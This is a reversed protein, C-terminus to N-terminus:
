EFVYKGKNCDREDSEDYCDLKGDCIANLHISASGNVALCSWRGLRYELLCAKKCSTVCTQSVCRDDKCVCSKPFLASERLVEELDEDLIRHYRRANAMLESANQQEACIGNSLNLKVNNLTDVVKTIIEKINGTGNNTDFSDQMDSVVDFLVRIEDYIKHRKTFTENINQIQCNEAFTTNIQIILTKAGNLSEAVTLFILLVKECLLSFLKLLPKKIVIHMCIYTFKFFFFLVYDLGQDRCNTEDSGNSCDVIGDCINKLQIIKDSKDGVTCRLESLTNVESCVLATSVICEKDTNISEIDNSFISKNGMEDHEFGHNFSQTEKEQSRGVDNFNRRSYHVLSRKLIENFSNTIINNYSVIDGNLEQLHKEQATELIKKRVNELFIRKDEISHVTLLYKKVFDEIQDTIKKTIHDKITYEEGDYKDSESADMTNNFVKLKVGQMILEIYKPAANGFSQTAVVRLKEELRSLLKPKEDISARSFSDGIKEIKKIIDTVFNNRNDYDDYGYLALSNYM